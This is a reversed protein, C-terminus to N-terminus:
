NAKEQYKKLKLLVISENKEMTEESELKKNYIIENEIGKNYTTL